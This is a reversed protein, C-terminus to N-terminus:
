RKIRRGVPLVLCLQIHILSYHLSPGNVLGSTAWLSNLSIRERKVVAQIQLFFFFLSLPLPCIIMNNGYDNRFTLSIGRELGRMVCICLLPRVKWSRQIYPLHKHEMTTYLSITFAGATRWALLDRATYVEQQFSCPGQKDQVTYQLIDTAVPMNAATVHQWILM